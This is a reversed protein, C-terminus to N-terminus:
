KFKTIIVHFRTLFDAKYKATSRQLYYILKKLNGNHCKFKSIFKVAQPDWVSLNGSKDGILLLSKIWMLSTAEVELIKHYIQTSTRVDIVSLVKDSGCSIINKSEPEFTIANVIASHGLYFNLIIIQSCVLSWM